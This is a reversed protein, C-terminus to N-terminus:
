VVGKYIRSSDTKLTLSLAMLRRADETGRERNASLVGHVEEIGVSIVDSLRGGHQAAGVEFYNDDSM